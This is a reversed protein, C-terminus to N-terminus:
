AKEEDGEKSVRRHIWVFQQLLISRDNREFDRPYEKQDVPLTGLYSEIFGLIFEPDFIRTLSNYQDREFDSKHSVDTELGWATLTYAELLRIVASKDKGLVSAM